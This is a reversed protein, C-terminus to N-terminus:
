AVELAHELEEDSANSNGYRLNSAINGSFLWAKQQVYALKERLHHQTMNRIDKGNLLLAGKTVDHFRLILSAVTSKGSGTGGIIATTEGRKCAFNLDHLTDEEADAFRFSVHDFVLVDDHEKDETDTKVLDTIEPTHDLIAKVRNCCELARPLTLIVMQAMM